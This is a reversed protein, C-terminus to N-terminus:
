CLENEIYEHFGSYYHWRVSQKVRGEFLKHYRALTTSSPDAIYVDTVNMNRFQSFVSQALVDTQPCSYGVIVIKRAEHLYELATTWLMRFISARTIPKNPVPPIILLSEDDSPTPCAGDAYWIPIRETSDVTGSVIQNFYERDCRWNVSGHLKLLLPHLFKEDTKRRIGDARTPVLRDFYLKKKSLGREILPRDVILDYNFTILRNKFGEPKQGVPFIKSIFKKTDGSSNSRCKLLHDAVLHSLHNLYDENSCKKRSKEPYLASLM